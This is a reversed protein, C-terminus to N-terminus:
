RIVPLSSKDTHLSTSKTLMKTRLPIEVHVQSRPWCITHDPIRELRRGNRALDTHVHDVQEVQAHELGDQETCLAERCSIAAEENEEVDTILINGPSKDGLVGVVLSLYKNLTNYMYM